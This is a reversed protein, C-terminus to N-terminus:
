SAAIADNNSPVTITPVNMGAGGQDKDDPKHRKLPNKVPEELDGRSEVEARNRRGLEVARREAMNAANRDYIDELTRRTPPPTRYGDPVAQGEPINQPINIVPV